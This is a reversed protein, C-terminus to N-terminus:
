FKSTEKSIQCGRFKEENDISNRKATPLLQSPIEIPCNQLEAYSVQPLSSFTDDATASFVSPIIVSALDNNAVLSASETSSIFSPQLISTSEEHSSSNSFWSTSSSATSNLARPRTILINTSGKQQCNSATILSSNSQRVIKDKM